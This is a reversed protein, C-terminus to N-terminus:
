AGSPLALPAHADRAGPPPVGGMWAGVNLSASRTQSFIPSTL